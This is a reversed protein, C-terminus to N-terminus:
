KGNSARGSGDPVLMEEWNLGSLVPFCERSGFCIYHTLRYLSEGVIGSVIPLICSIHLIKCM